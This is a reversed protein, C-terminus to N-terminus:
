SHQQYRPTPAHHTTRPRDRRPRRPLLPTSHGERDSRCRSRFGGNVVSPTIPPPGGEEDEADRDHGPFYSRRAGAAIRVAEGPGHVVGMPRKSVPRCPPLPGPRRMPSRDPQGRTLLREKTTSGAGRPPEDYSSRMRAGLGLLATPPCPWQIAARRPSLRIRLALGHGLARQRKLVIRAPGPLLGPVSVPALRIAFPFLPNAPEGLLGPSTSRRASADGVAPDRAAPQAADLACGTSAHDPWRRKSDSASSARTLRNGGLRRYRSPSSCIRPGPRALAVRPVGPARGGNSRTVM